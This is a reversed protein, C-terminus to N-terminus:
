PLQYVNLPSTRICNAVYVVPARGMSIFYIDDYLTIGISNDQAYANPYPVYCCM